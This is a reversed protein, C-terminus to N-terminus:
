ASVGDVVCKGDKFSIKRYVLLRVHINYLPRAGRTDESIAKILVDDGDDRGEEDVEEVDKLELILKANHLKLSATADTDIGNPDFGICIVNYGPHYPTIPFFRGPVISSSYIGDIEPLKPLNGYMLSVTKVPNTGKSIDSPDTTFNSYNNSELAKAPEAVFFIGVSPSEVDLPIEIKKGAEYKLERPIIVTDHTYFTNNQEQRWEWESPNSKGYTAYLEPPPLRSDLEFDVLPCEKFRCADLRTEVWEEGQKIRVRLLSVIKERMKYIHTITDKRALGVPLAKGYDRCYDWCQPTILTYKPLRSSWTTLEPVNGILKFLHGRDIDLMHQFAMNIWVTDMSQLVSSETTLSAREVINLGINSCWCIQVTDKFKPKVKIEPLTQWLDTVLLCDFRNDVEFAYSDSIPRRTMKVYIHGARAKRVYEWYFISRVQLWTEPRDPDYDAKEEYLEEQFPTSKSIEAIVCASQEM